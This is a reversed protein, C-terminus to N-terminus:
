TPLPVLGFLGALLYVGAATVVVKLAWWGWGGHWRNVHGTALKMGM